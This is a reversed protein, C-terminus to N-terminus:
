APKIAERKYLRCKGDSHEIASRTFFADFARRVDPWRGDTYYDDGILAGGPRLTRWWLGLDLTVSNFDHSADLHIVDVQLAASVVIHSANVSNLPIPVIYQECGDAVVNALFTEYVTPYGNRRTLGADM